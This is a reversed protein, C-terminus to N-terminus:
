EYSADTGLRGRHQVRGCAFRHREALRQVAVIQNWTVRRSSAVRDDIQMGVVDTLVVPDESLNWESPPGGSLAVGGVDGGAMTVCTAPHTDLVAWYRQRPHHPCIRPQPGDYPYPHEATAPISRPEVRLDHSQDPPTGHGMLLSLTGTLVSAVAVRLVPTHLEITTLNSLLARDDDPLTTRVEMRAIQNATALVVGEKGEGVAGDPETTTLDVNNRGIGGDRM